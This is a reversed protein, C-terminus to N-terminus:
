SHKSVSLMFPFDGIIEFAGGNTRLNEFSSRLPNLLIM